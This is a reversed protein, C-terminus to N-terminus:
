PLVIAKGIKRLELNPLYLTFKRGIVQIVEAKLAAAMAEAAERPTVPCTKLVTAKVLERKSLYQQFTTINAADLGDKGIQIAAPIETALGRLLARQKGTLM